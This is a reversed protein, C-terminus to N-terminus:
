NTLSTDISSLTEAQIFSGFMDLLSAVNQTEVSFSINVSIRDDVEYGAERRAEQIHRVIDRAYGETELDPTIELDMAIVMGFGSEINDSDGETVFAMEFENEELKWGRGAESSEGKNLPLIM